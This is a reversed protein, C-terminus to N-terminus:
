SRTQRPNEEDFEWRAPNEDIYRRIRNLAPEDRIIHEYYNRQWLRDRFETWGHTKVGDIYGNTTLSKFAGVVDGLRVPADTIPAGVLPAGVIAPDTPAVRTTAGRTTAGRTTAGKTTAERADADPFVLIGHLHNPMVVFQDIEISSFRAAVGDWLTAVMQGAANLCMADAAVDGFLCVRDQTCITVFYAGAMTYDYGKLRLSRRRHITSSRM